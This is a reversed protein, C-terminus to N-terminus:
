HRPLDVVAITVGGSTVFARAIAGAKLRFLVRSGGREGRALVGDEFEGDPSHFGRPDKTAPTADPSDVYSRGDAQTRLMLPIPKLSGSVPLLLRKPQFSPTGVHLGPPLHAVPEAKPKAATKPKPAKALRPTATPAPPGALYRQLSGLNWDGALLGWLVLTAVCALIALNRGLAQFKTPREGFRM